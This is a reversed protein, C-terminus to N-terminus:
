NGRYTNYWWLFNNVAGLTWPISKALNIGWQINNKLWNAWNWATTQNYAWLTRNANSLLNPTAQAMQVAGNIKNPINNVTNVFSTVPNVVRRKTQVEPTVSTILERQNTNPLPKWDAWLLPTVPFWVLPTIEEKVEPIVTLEKAEQVPIEELVTNLEWVPEAPVFQWKSDINYWNQNVLEGSPTYVLWDNWVTYWANLYENLRLQDNTLPIQRRRQGWQTTAQTSQDAIANNYSNIVGQARQIRDEAAYMDLRLHQFANFAEQMVWKAKIQQEPTANIYANFANQYKNYKDALAAYNDNAIDLEMKAANMEEQTPM